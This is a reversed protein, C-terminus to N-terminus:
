EFIELSDRTEALTLAVGLAAWQDSAFGYLPGPEAKTGIQPTKGGGTPEYRDILAQRVNGDKAKASKCIHLKVDRRYVRFTNNEVYFSRHLMERLRGCWEATEFVSKGVAMGYCAVCEIGFYLPTIRDSLEICDLIERYIKGNEVKGHVYPYLDETLAVLASHTNGPDIGIYM